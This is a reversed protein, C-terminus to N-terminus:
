EHQNAALSASQVDVFFRKPNEPDLYVPIPDGPLLGPDKTLMESHYERAAGGPEIRCIVRYPHRGNIRVSVVRQTGTVCAMEYYGKAILAERNRMRKRVYFLFGFGVSGFILSQLGLVGGATALAMHSRVVFLLILLVSLELCAISAFIIGIIKLPHNKM